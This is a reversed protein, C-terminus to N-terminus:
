QYTAIKKFLITRKSLVTPTESGSHGPWVTKLLEGGEGLWALTMDTKEARSDSGRLADAQCSRTAPRQQWQANMRMRVSISTVLIRSLGPLPAEQNTRGLAYCLIFLFSSTWGLATKRSTLFSPEWSVPSDPKGREMDQQSCYSSGVVFVPVSWGWHICFGRCENVINEPSCIFIM